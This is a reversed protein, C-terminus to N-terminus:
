GAFEAAIEAKIGVAEEIDAAGSEVHGTRNKAMGRGYLSLARKPELALASDYDAIAEEYRALKFLIM